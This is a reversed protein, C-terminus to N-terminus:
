LDLIVEAVWGDAQRAVKLQHYTVAKVEAALEHRAPDYLQGSLVARVSTEDAHEVRVDAVVFHDFLILSMVEWLFDVALAERDEASVELSRTQDPQVQGRPCIFEALGEALAAMLEAPTDARARLGVDATHEFTECHGSMTADDTLFGIRDRRPV